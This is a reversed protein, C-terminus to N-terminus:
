QKKKKWPRAWNTWKQVRSLPKAQPVLIAELMDGLPKKSHIPGQAHRPPTTITTTATPDKSAKTVPEAKPVEVKPVEDVLARKVPPKEVPATVCFLLPPALIGLWWTM